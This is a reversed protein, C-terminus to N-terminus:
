RRPARTRSAAAPHDIHEPRLGLGIFRGMVHRVVPLHQVIRLPVPVPVREGPEALRVLVTELRRQFAQTIRAPPERRQQIRHLLAETPRAHALQPALANAAAVADQIALNIGVGGAPSMAHAADGIALLGDRHWRELHEIRVSLLRIDDLRLPAMRDHFAPALAAVRRRLAELSAASGDWAGKRVIHACQFFDGRPISLLAGDGAQMFPIQEGESRPLRFWLVDIASPGGVPRMGAASRLASDRGDALVTLKARIEVRGVPGDAVVGAIRSGDRLLATGATRMRLEYGAHERGAAALLDLFDWQPMFAIARRRTPLRTFDALVLRRGSFAMTVQPLDEHPRALFRELLGLEHLLEQTSPHITDGRFDRLFDAHQELVTVRVGRRALLLGLMLGAPGGGVVVCDTTVVSSTGTPTESM